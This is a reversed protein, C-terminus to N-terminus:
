STFLAKLEPLSLRLIHKRGTPGPSTDAIDSLQDYLRLISTESSEPLKRRSWQLAIKSAVFHSLSSSTPRDDKYASLIEELLESLSIDSVGLAPVAYNIYSEQGFEEVRFGMRNLQPMIQPMLACDSPSLHITSPFIEKQSAVQEQTEWQTLLQSHYLKALAARHDILLLGDTDEICLYGKTLDFARRSSGGIAVAPSTDALEEASAEHQEYLQRWNDKNNQQRETLPTAQYGGGSTMGQRADFSGTSTREFDLSPIAYSKGLAHKCSVRLYNYLIREDEFKVEQKSPHVNVDVRSPDMELFLIYLPHSTSEILEGYASRVAHHLYPSKIFRQNIFFYQEGRRKKASAPAGIMGTIKVLETDESLPILKDDLNKGLAHIIRSKLSGAPLHFIERDNHSLSFGIGPHAMAVRLFEDQAHRMEVADSKLFKQRAPTHYFLQKVTVVTGDLCACPEITKIDSDEIVIRTGALDDARKTQLEVRAVSAISALAEGRFGMTRIAYLEDVTKLKSTAHREFCMRADTDTMGVGDDTVQILAKGAQRLVLRIMTADADLANEMLEKVVSAPRQVVEGAAIRNAIHDPLLQIIDPM